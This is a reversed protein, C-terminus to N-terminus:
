NRCGDEEDGSASRSAQMHIVMRQAQELWRLKESLPLRSLRRLQQVAHEDWGCEWRREETFERKESLKKM